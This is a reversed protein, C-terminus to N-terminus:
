GCVRAITWANKTKPKPAGRFVADGMKAITYLTAIIGIAVVNRTISSSVLAERYAVLIPELTIDIQQLFQPHVFTDFLLGLFLTYVRTICFWQAPRTRDIFENGFYALLNQMTVFIMCFSQKPSQGATPGAVFDYSTMHWAAFLIFYGRAHMFGTGPIPPGFGLIPQGDITSFKGKQFVYYPSVVMFCALAIAIVFDDSMWSLVACMGINICLAWQLAIALHHRSIPFVDRVILHLGLTGALVGLKKLWWFWHWGVFDVHQGWAGVAVVMAAGM